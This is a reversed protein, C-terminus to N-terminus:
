KKERNVCTHVIENNTVVEYIRVSEKVNKLFVERTFKTKINKKNSVNNRVSESVWIGGIPALAQLRSAINVGDGFVDNNEFVIEGV